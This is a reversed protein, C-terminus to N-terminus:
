LIRSMMPSRANSPMGMRPRTLASRLPWMICAPKIDLSRRTREAHSMTSMGARAWAVAHLGQPTPGASRPCGGKRVRIQSGTLDWIVFFVFVLFGRLNPLTAQGQEDHGLVGREAPGIVM